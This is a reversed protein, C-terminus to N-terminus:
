FLVLSEKQLTKSIVTFYNKIKTLNGLIPLIDEESLYIREDSHHYNASWKGVFNWLKM